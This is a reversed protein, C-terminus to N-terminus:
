NDLRGDTAVRCLSNEAHLFNLTSERRNDSSNKNKNMKVSTKKIM